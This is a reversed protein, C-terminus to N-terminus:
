SSQRITGPAVNVRRPNWLHRLRHRRRRGRLRRHHLRLLPHLHRRWRRRRHHLLLLLPSRFDIWCSRSCALSCCQSRTLMTTTSPTALDDADFCSVRVASGSCSAASTQHPIGRRFQFRRDNRSTTSRCPSSRRQPLCRPSDGVSHHTM